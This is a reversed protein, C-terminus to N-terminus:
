YLSGDRKPLVSLKEVSYMEECEVSVQLDDLLTFECIVCDNDTTMITSGAKVIIFKSCITEPM